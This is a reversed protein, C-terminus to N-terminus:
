GLYKNFLSLAKKKSDAKILVKDRFVTIEKYRFASGYDVIGKFLKKLDNIKNKSYVIYSKRGCLNIIKSVKNGSLYEYNGSCVSCDGKGIKIKDFQNDSLDFSMLSKEFKDSILVKLCESVQVSSILSTISSLVGLSECNGFANLNAFVCNFCPGGPFVNLVYGKSRVASAHIWHIKNLSCYDNILFRTEFNDTCDLVVSSKILDINTHDLNDFISTIKIDSNIENLRAKAVEVKLKGVDKETFLHQRPLNDLEIHDRDILVLEKIGARVLLSASLTGLAGVGVICVKSNELKKQSNKGIFIEQRVYRNM